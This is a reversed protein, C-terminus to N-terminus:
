FTGFVAFGFDVKKCHFYLSLLHSDVNVQAKLSEALLDVCSM